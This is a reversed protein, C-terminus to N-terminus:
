LEYMKRAYLLIESSYEKVIVDYIRVSQARISDFSIYFEESQINCNKSIYLFIDLSNIFNWYIKQPFCITFFYEWNKKQATCGLCWSVVFIIEINHIENM